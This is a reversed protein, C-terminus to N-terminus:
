DVDLVVISSLINVTQIPPFSLYSGNTVLFIFDGQWQAVEAFNMYHPVSNECWFKFDLLM